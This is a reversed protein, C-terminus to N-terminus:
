YLVTDGSASGSDNGGLMDVDVFHGAFNLTGGTGHCDSVGWGTGPLWVLDDKSSLKVLYDKHLGAADGLVTTKCTNAKISRWVIVQQVQGSSNKKSGIIVDVATTSGFPNKVITRAEAQGVWAALTACAGAAVLLVRLKSSMARM